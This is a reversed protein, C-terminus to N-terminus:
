YKCAWDCDEGWSWCEMMSYTMRGDDCMRGNFLITCYCYMRGPGFYESDESKQTRQDGTSSVGDRGDLQAMFETKTGKFAEWLQTVIKGMSDTESNRM